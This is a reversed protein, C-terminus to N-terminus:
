DESPEEIESIEGDQINISVKGYQDELEKQIEQMEVQLQGVQHLVEHKQIEIGGLDTQSKNIKGVVEQLSKLQEETIKAM